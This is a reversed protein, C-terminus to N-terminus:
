CFFDSFVRSLNSPDALYKNFLKRFEREKTESLPEVLVPIIAFEAKHSEMAEATYPLHMEISHEIEDTQLSM